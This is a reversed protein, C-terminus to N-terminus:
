RLHDARGAPGDARGAIFIAAPRIQTKGTVRQMGARGDRRRHHQALRRDRGKGRVIPRARPRRLFSSATPRGSRRSRDNAPRDVQPRRRFAGPRTASPRWGSTSRGNAGLDRVLRELLLPAPRISGRSRGRLRRRGSRGLDAGGAEAVTDRGRGRHAGALRGVGAPARARRGAERRRSAPQAGHVPPRRSPGSSPAASAELM